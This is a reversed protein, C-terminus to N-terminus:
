LLEFCNKSFHGSLIELSHVSFKYNRLLNYRFKLRVIKEQWVSSHLFFKHIWWIYCWLDVWCFFLGFCWYNINEILKCIKKNRLYLKTCFLCMNREYHFRCCHFVHNWVRFPLLSFHMKGYIIKKVREDRFGFLILCSCIKLLFLPVLERFLRFYFREFLQKYHSLIWDRDKFIRKSERLKKVYFQKKECIYHFEKCVCWIKVLDNLRLYIFITTWVEVPLQM